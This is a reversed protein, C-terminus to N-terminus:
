KLTKGWTKENTYVYFFVCEKEGTIVIPEYIKYTNYRRKPNINNQRVIDQINKQIKSQFIKGTEVTIWNDVNMNYPIENGTIYTKGLVFMSSVTEFVNVIKYTLNENDLTHKVVFLFLPSNNESSSSTNSSSVYENTLENPKQPTNQPTQSGKVTLSSTVLNANLDRAEPLGAYKLTPKETSNNMLLREQNDNNKTEGNPM